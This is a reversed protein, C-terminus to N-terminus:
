WCLVESVDDATDITYIVGVSSEQRHVSEDYFYTSKDEVVVEEEGPLASGYIWIIGLFIVCLTWDTHWGRKCATWPEPDFLVIEYYTLKLQQSFGHGDLTDGQHQGHEKM